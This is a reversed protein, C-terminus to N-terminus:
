SEQAPKNGMELLKSSVLFSKKQYQGDEAEPPLSENVMQSLPIVNSSRPFGQMRINVNIQSEDNDSLHDQTCSM